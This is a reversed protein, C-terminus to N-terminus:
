HGYRDNYAKFHDVDLLLVALSRGAAAGRQWLEELHEDFVRRNKVGTLSDRQALEAMAHTEFFQKRASRELTRSVVGGAGAVVLLLVCSRVILALALGFGVAALAYVAIMCIVG